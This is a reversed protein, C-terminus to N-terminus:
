ENLLERVFSFPLFFSLSADDFRVFGFHQYFGAVEENKADVVIGYAAVSQAANWIRCVADMLLIRGLKKGKKHSAVALRGIRAIPTPYKPVGSQYVFPISRFEIAGMSITYYGAVEEEEILVFTTGIGKKHNGRAYRKLYEDLAEVGCSFSKYSSASVETIAAIESM